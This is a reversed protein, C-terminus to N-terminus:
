LRIIVRIILVITRYNKGFWQNQAYREVRVPLSELSALTFSSM